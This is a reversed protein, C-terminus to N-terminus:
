TTVIMRPLTRCLQQPQFYGRVAGCLLSLSPQLTLSASAPLVPVDRSACPRLRTPAYPASRQDAHFVFRLCHLLPTNGQTLNTAKPIGLTDRAYQAPLPSTLFEPTAPTASHSPQLFKRKVPFHTRPGRGRFPAGQFDESERRFRVGIVLKGPPTVLEFNTLDTFSPEDLNSNYPGGDQDFCGISRFGWGL